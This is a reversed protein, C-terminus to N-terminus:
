QEKQLYILGLPFTKRSNSWDHWGNFEVYKFDYDLRDLIRIFKRNAGLVMNEQLGWDIFIKIDRKQEKIFRNILYDTRNMNSYKLDGITDRWFSGSQSLVKGFISDCEFAIYTAALGGYSMGGVITENSKDTIRYKTKIKPILETIVFTKFIPNMPLELDRSTPTPNDIFVAIMPEIKGEKILNDLVNPVEVRNLYIFSDFLYIVPYNVNTKEYDAPLYVYINRTNNLLNSTIQLTDLKSGSNKLRKLNWDVENNRLDLVSWSLEERRNKPILENNLPDTIIQKEGNIKNTLIFRYAFCLDNPIMYTRYYIDTSDLRYLEKDGFRYEDYIGFVEFKIDYNHTTDVYLFTAFVYDSYLSDIEILPFGKSVGHRILDTSAIAKESAKLKKISSITPSISKYINRIEKFEIKDKKDVCSTLIGVFILLKLIKQM